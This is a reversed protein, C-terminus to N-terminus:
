VYHEGTTYRRVKVNHSEDMNNCMATSQETAVHHETSQIYWLNNIRINTSVKPM